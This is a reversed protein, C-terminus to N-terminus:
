SGKGGTKPPEKPEDACAAAYCQRKEPVEAPRPAGSADLPVGRDWRTTRAADGHPLARPHKFKLTGRPKDWSTCCWTASWGGLLYNSIINEFQSAEKREEFGGFAGEAEALHLVRAESAGWARVSARLQADSLGRPLQLTCGARLPRKAGAPPQLEALSGGASWCVTAVDAADFPRAGAPPAHITRNLLTWPHIPLYGDKWIREVRVLDFLSELPCTFPLQTSTGQLTCTPLLAFPSEARDCVCLFRPLVLRRGLARAIGMANRLAAIYRDVLDLHAALRPAGHLAAPITWGKKDATMGPMPEPRNPNTLLSPHREPPLPGPQPPTFTLYRGDFPEPSVPFLGAERLRWYKAPNKPWGEVFTLHLVLCARPECSQQVHYVHASCIVNSALPALKRNAGSRAGDYVVRGDARAAQIPYIRERGSGAKADRATTPDRVTGALQNFTLQDDVQDNGKVQAMRERWEAAVGIAARTSRFFMVGTNFWASWRSGPHHGCRHVKNSRSSRDADYPVDLCDTGAMVDAEPLSAFLAHPPSVWASDVDSFCVHRGASLLWVIMDAKTVGYARFAGMEWRFDSADSTSVNLGGMGVRMTPLRRAVFTKAADQDLAALVAHRGHGSRELVSLLLLAWNIALESYASNALSIFALEGRPVRSLVDDASLVRANEDSPPPPPPPRARPPTTTTAAVGGGSATASASSGGSAASSARAVAAELRQLREENSRAAIRRGPATPLPQFPTPLVISSLSSRVAILTVGCVLATLAFERVRM